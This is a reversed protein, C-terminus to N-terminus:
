FGLLDLLVSAYIRHGYDNPHNVGNGTMDYFKKRALIKRWVSQVDAVATDDPSGSVYGCMARAYEFDPGPVTPQWEANGTMPTVIIYETDPSVKRNSNIIWDLESIFDEVPTSSFNNMGFAIVMLDPADNIWEDFIDRPYKIGKGSVARNVLTHNGPINGCVLEMYCPNYPPTNTFKTANYGASISDGHLLIKLSQGASIKSRLRPLRNKQASLQPDFDSCKARYTVEVQHRAFFDDNNFLLYGGSVAAAIANSNKEPYIRLDKEPYCVDRGLFPIRSSPTLKITNNKEDFIYDKGPEYVVGQSPTEVKIIEKADFLLNAFDSLAFMCSESYILTDNWLLKMDNGKFCIKEKM